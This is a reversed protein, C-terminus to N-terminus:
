PSAILVPLSDRVLDVIPDPFTGFGVTVAVCVIIALGAGFPIRIPGGDAVEDSMYMSVIIRLYLFASVVSSLM